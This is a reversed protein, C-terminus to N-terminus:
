EGLPQTGICISANTVYQITNCLQRLRLDFWWWRSIIYYSELWRNNQM